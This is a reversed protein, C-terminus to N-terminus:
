ICCGKFNNKTVLEHIVDIAWKQWEISGYEIEGPQVKRAGAILKVIKGVNKLQAMKLGEIGVDVGISYGNNKFFWVM